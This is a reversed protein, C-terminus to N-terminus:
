GMRERGKAAHVVFKYGNGPKLMDPEPEWEKKRGMLM